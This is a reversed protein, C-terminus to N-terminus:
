SLWLPKCCVCCVSFSAVSPGVVFVSTSSTLYAAVCLVVLTKTTWTSSPSRWLLIVVGVSHSSPFDCGKHQSCTPITGGWDTKPFLGLNQPLLGLKSTCFTFERHNHDHLTYITLSNASHASGAASHAPLDQTQLIFQNDIFFIIASIRTNWRNVEIIFSHAKNQSPNHTYSIINYQHM